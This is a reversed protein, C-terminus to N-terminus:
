RAALEEALLRAKRALNAAAEVDGKELAQCAQTVFVRV